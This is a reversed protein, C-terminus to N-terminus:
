NATQQDHQNEQNPAGNEDTAGAEAGEAAGVKFPTAPLETTAPWGFMARKENTTLFSVFSMARMAETRAEVMTPISEMDPFIRVGPPCLARTLGEFLPEIYSPLLTDQWFSLRSDKFNGTFKAADAAGLGSIALPIGFAGFILRAMDDSPLKSHIDSLDNDLKHIEIEGANQLVPVTGSGAGGSASEQGLHEKLAELQPVTLTKSCTVMYRVNPHGSAAKVARKLLETIVQAPLGIAQLPNNIDERNQYGKLGPRWIQTVFGKSDRGNREWSYKSQFTQKPSTGYVYEVVIGRENLVAQVHRTELPYIGNPRERDTAMYSIRLPVRGYGAFNLTMWYRLQAPTMDPNPYDLLAQINKVVSAKNQQDAKPARSDVDAIWRVQQVSESIKVLARYVIPHRLAMELSIYDSMKIVAVGIGSNL